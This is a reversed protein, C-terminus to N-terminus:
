GNPQESKPSRTNPPKALHARCAKQVADEAEPRAPGGLHEQGLLLQGTAADFQLRGVTLQAAGARGQAYAVARTGLLQELTFKLDLDFTQGLGAGAGASTNSPLDAPAVPRGTVDVGPQFAVGADPKHEV